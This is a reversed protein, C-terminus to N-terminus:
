ITDPIRLSISYLNVPKHTNNEHPFRLTLSDACHRYKYIISIVVRMLISSYILIIVDIGIDSKAYDKNEKRNM